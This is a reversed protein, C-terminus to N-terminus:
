CPTNFDQPRDIRFLSARGDHVLETVGPASRTWGAAEPEGVDNDFSRGTVVYRYRGTSVARRWETCSAIDLFTGHSGHHGVYQVRNSLDSGYLPYQQYFGALAIRTGHLGRSAGVIMALDDGYSPNSGRYRNAIYSREVRWGGVIVALAIASASAIRMGRGNSLRRVSALVVVIVVGMIALAAGPGRNGPWARRPVEEAFLILALGVVLVLQASRRAFLKASPLLVCALAVAGLAFRFQPVFLPPYATTPTIAYALGAAMAVVAVVRHLPARPRVLALVTGAAALALLLPWGRGFFRQLGPQYLTRWAHGTLHTAVAERGRDVVPLKPTPLQIPGLGIHLPPLPNGVRLTNRAYWFAGGSALGGLWAVARPRSGRAVFLLVAITLICAPAVFSLKMGLALGTAVGSAAVAPASEPGHVLLAVAVLLFATVGVDNLATGAQSTAVFPAGMLVAFAATTPWAAGSPRGICWAAVFGIALWGVNFLPTLVDTRFFLVGFAQLLESNAPYFPIAEGPTAFHFRSVWGTQVFRAAFPGHYSLTDCCMGHRYANVVGSAWQAGVFTIAVLAVLMTARTAFSAPSPPSGTSATADAAQGVIALLGGAVIAALVVPARRFLGVTGLSEGILVLVLHVGVIDVLWAPPGSWEPLVRRRVRRMGIVVPAVTLITLVVGAAFRSSSM